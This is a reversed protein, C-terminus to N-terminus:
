IFPPESSIFDRAKDLDEPTDIAPGNPQTEVMLVTQSHELLRLIEIDEISELPSKKSRPGFFKLAHKRLAYLGIQRSAGRFGFNKNTPVPSRSIFLLNGAKDFLVKPVSPSRFEDENHIKAFANIAHISSPSKLATQIMLGISIPSVFPEDGQVNLYWDAPYRKAVEAVRDTGTLCDSSTMEVRAGFGQAVAQIRKDDTAIIVKEADVAQCCRRWVHEIMPTGALDALPKGPFRTSRYRAPIVVLFNM